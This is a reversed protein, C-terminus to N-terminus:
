MVGLFAAVAVGAALVVMVATARWETRHYHSIPNMSEPRWVRDHTRGYMATRREPLANM